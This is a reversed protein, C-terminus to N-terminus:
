LHEMHACKTIRCVDVRYDLENWSDTAHLLRWNRSVQPLLLFMFRIRSTVGNFSIVLPQMQLVLYITYSLKNVVRCENQIVRHIYIYIYIYIHTHTHTHTHTHARARTPYSLRYLSQSCAPRDPISDRYPRSKGGMWVPGPAWGAEQLIPVPYRVSPLSFEWVIWEEFCVSQRLEWGGFHTFYVSQLCVCVSSLLCARVCVCVCVRMCVCVSWM